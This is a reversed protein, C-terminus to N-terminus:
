VHGYPHGVITWNTIKQSRWVVSRSARDSQLTHDLAARVRRGIVPCGAAVGAIAEHAIAVGTGGQRLAEEAIVISSNVRTIRSIATPIRSCVGYGYVYM